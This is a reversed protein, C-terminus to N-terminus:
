KVRMGPEAGANPEIIWIDKGGPGTALVMGSSLGFRMKRPQLNAVVVTLKGILQEPAYAAKIGAFITRQEGGLDITLKILKDAEPVEEANIIKVVRLDIKSFDDITIEANIPDAQLRTATAADSTASLDEQSATIMAEVQKPDLRSLLPVYEKITHNLLQQQHDSWQMAPIMLFDETAQALQPLVPKLYLMLLRFINIGQTCVQHAQLQTAPDKILLWPKHQDIFQNAQDALTMIDRMARSFDREEYYASISEAASVFQAYHNTDALEGSLQNAFNTNIFKACRSAINIVKGVLDSNVRNVFDELNLDVDEIHKGLKTAYYYRLYEPRCYDLYTRAKIFTGRSKSMKKGNVTLFGCANVGTPLRCDAGALMAPWFLAHFYIIDKGIFHYLEHTSDKGWYDEFKLDDRKQCLQLFSAMYGIPADLWVYFYKGPMDPIEFGFYPADRSIDWEQLGVGFWEALKNIVHEQLDSAQMWEKLLETFEPLRFFLHESERTIPTAGSVVSIPNRLEQPSYTAGCVECADGYQDAAGCRPCEGKVYRDPLFMNATPDYLQSITHRSLYNNKSLAHYTKNVLEKNEPSHTSSFNDFDVAFDAFDQQQQQQVEAVLQEPSIGRKQAYLMIPTGHADSGCVHWCTNGQLRQFRVWTDAQIYSVLHGLHLQGNAYPLASTVLLTRKNM